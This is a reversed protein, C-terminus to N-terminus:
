DLDTSFFDINLGVHLSDGTKWPMNGTFSVCIEHGEMEFHLLWHTGLYHLSLLRAQKAEVANVSEVIFADPRLIIQQSNTELKLGFSDNLWKVSFVQFTGLLGAVTENLPNRYVQMPSGSQVLKGNDLVLLSESWGLAEIPDHTALIVTGLSERQWIELSEMLRQKLGQDLQAFPEDLLLLNPCHSLAVVLAIRQKEGGSLEDTWRDLFNEIFFLTSYRQCEAETWHGAYRLCEGVRYHNRLHPQQHLYQIQPHGPILVEESGAIRKEQYLM